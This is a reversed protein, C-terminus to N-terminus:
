IGRKHVGGVSSNKKHTTSRSLIGNLTKKQQMTTEGASDQEVSVTEDSKCVARASRPAGRDRLEASPQRDASERNVTGSFHVKLLASSQTLWACVCACMVVRERECVCVYVCV